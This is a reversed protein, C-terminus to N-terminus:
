AVELSSYNNLPTVVVHVKLSDKDSGSLFNSKQKADNLEDFDIIDDFNVIQDDGSFFFNRTMVKRVHEFGDQSGVLLIGIRVRQESSDRTSVSIRVTRLVREPVKFSVVVFSM